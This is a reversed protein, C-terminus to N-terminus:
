QNGPAGAAVEDGCHVDSGAPCSRRCTHSNEDAGVIPLGSQTKSADNLECQKAADRMRQAFRLEPNKMSKAKAAFTYAWMRRGYFIEHTVTQSCCVWLTRPAFFATHKPIDRWNVKANITRNMENPHKDAVEAFNHEDWYKTLLEDSNWTTRWIRYFEDCNYFMRVRVWEDDRGDYSDAHIEEAFMETLRWSHSVEGSFDYRPFLRKVTETMFKTAAGVQNRYAIAGSLDGPFMFRLIHHPFTKKDLPQLMDPVGCKKIRRNRDENVKAAHIAAFDVPFNVEDFVAVEGAEFADMATEGPKDFSLFRFRNPVQPHAEVKTRTPQNTILDEPRVTM